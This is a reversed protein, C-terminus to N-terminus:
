YDVVTFEGDSKISLVGSQAPTQPLLPATETDSKMTSTATTSNFTKPIPVPNANSETKQTEKPKTTKLPGPMKVRGENNNSEPEPDFTGTLARWTNEWWSRVPNGDEDVMCKNGCPYGEALFLM